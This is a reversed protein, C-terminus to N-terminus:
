RIMNESGFPRSRLGHYEVSVLRIQLLRKVLYFRVELLRFALVKVETSLEHAASVDLLDTSVLIIITDRNAIRSAIGFRASM